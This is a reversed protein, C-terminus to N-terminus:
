SESSSRSAWRALSEHGRLNSLTAAPEDAEFIQAHIALSLVGTIALGLYLLGTTRAVRSLDKM